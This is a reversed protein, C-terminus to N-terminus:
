TSTDDARPRPADVYDHPDIPDTLIARQDPGAQRWVRLTVWWDRVWAISGRVCDGSM